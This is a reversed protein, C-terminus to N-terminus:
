FGRNTLFIIYLLTDPVWSRRALRLCCRCRAARGLPEYPSPLPPTLRTLKLLFVTKQFLSNQPILINSWSNTTHEIRSIGWSLGELCDYERFTSGCMNESCTVRLCDSCAASDRLVTFLGAPTVHLWQSTVPASDPPPGQNGGPASPHCHESYRARPPPHHFAAGSDPDALVPCLEFTTHVNAVAAKRM